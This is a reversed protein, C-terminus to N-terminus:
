TEYIGPKFGRWVVYYKQKAKKAM